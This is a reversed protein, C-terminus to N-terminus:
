SQMPLQRRSSFPLAKPVVDPIAGQSYAVPSLGFPECGARDVRFRAVPALDGPPPM